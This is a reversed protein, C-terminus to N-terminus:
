TYKPFDRSLFAESKSREQTSGSSEVRAKSAMDSRGLAALRLSSGYRASNLGPVKRLLQVSATNLDVGVTGVCDSLVDGLVSSVQGAPMDKQYM